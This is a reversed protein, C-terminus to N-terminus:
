AGGTGGQASGDGLVLSADLSFMARLSPVEDHRQLLTPRRSVAQQIRWRNDRLAARYAERGRQAREGATQAAASLEVYGGHRARREVENQLACYVYMYMYVRIFLQVDTSLDSLSM